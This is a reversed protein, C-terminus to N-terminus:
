YKLWWDTTKSDQDFKSFVDPLHSINEMINVYIYMLVMYVYM